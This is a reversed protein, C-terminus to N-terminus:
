SRVAAQQKIARVTYWWMLITWAFFGTAVLWFGFLGAYTFPGSTFFPVLIGPLLTIALWLNAYGLWRPYPQPADERGGIICLGIAANQLVAPSYAALLLFFALNDVV